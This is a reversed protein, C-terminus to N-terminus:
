LSDLLKLLRDKSINLSSENLLKIQQIVKSKSTKSVMSKLTKLYDVELSTLNSIDLNKISPKHSDIKKGQPEITGQTGKIGNYGKSGKLEQETNKDINKDENDNQCASKNTIKKNVKIEPITFEKTKNFM